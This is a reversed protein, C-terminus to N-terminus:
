QIPIGFMRIEIKVEKDYKTLSCVSVL